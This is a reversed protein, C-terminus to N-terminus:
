QELWTKMCEYGESLGLYAGVTMFLPSSFYAGAGLAGLSSFASLKCRSSMREYKRIREEEERRERNEEEKQRRLKEELEMQAKRYMPNTYHKGGNAEVMKEVAQLLKPVQSPNGKPSNILSLYKGGCSNILRRLEVSERIFEEVTKGELLDGHTFVVITFMSGDSGFNDQIWTVAGREEETFRAKLSMVLLFAHPGPVSQEVCDEIKAKLEEKTVRTDFLGPTDVVVISRGDRLVQRKQCHATVSEPSMNEEFANRRGLITNGSASKGSGTKGVLILRLESQDKSDDRQSQCQAYLAQGCLITLWFTSFDGPSM